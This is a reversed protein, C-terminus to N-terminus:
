GGPISGTARGCCHRAPMSSAMVVSSRVAARDRSTGSAAPPRGARAPHHQQGIAHVRPAVVVGDLRGGLPQDLLVGLLKGMGVRGGSPAIDVIHDVGPVGAGTQDLRKPHELALPVPVRGLLM